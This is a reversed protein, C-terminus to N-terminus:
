EEERYRWAQVSKIRHYKKGNDDIFLDYDASYDSLIEKHQGRPIIYCTSGREPVVEWSNYNIMKKTDIKVVKEGSYVRDLIDRVIFTLHISRIGYDKDLMNSVKNFQDAFLEQQRKTGKASEQLMDELSKM